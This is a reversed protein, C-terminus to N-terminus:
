IVQMGQETDSMATIEQEIAEVAPGLSRTDACQVRAVHRGQLQLAACLDEVIAVSELNTKLDLEFLREMRGQHREREALRETLIDIPADLCVLLDSRPIAELARMVTARDSARGLLVLSCVAQVFGQDFIVIHDSLSARHWAHLLRLLYQRLRVSWLFDRPPLLRMLDAAIGAEHANFLLHGATSLMEFAPRILRRVAATAHHAAPDAAPAGNPPAAEAPRYSQILEAALGRAQLHANLAMAFTTKGVGPAGFLEIIM